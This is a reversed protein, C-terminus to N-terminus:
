GSRYERELREPSWAGEHLSFLPRCAFSQGDFATPMEPWRAVFSGRTASKRGAIWKPAGGGQSFWEIVREVDQSSELRGIIKTSANSFVNYDVSRPSQTCVLCAVGYKRGQSFLRVLPQKAPPQATGAPIYDRAEDLYFLLNTRGRAELESVMWRYLESALAGVFFQKEVDTGLANLYIINLPVRGPASPRVLASIDLPEGDRFLGASSGITLGYLSQALKARAAKALILDADDIGFDEPNLCAKSLTAFDIGKPYMRFLTQLARFVFNAPGVSANAMGSLSVLNQAMTTLMADHEEARRKPDELRALMDETITRLPHLCLRRAHSTGPTFVRPEVKTLFDAHVARWASPIDDESRQRLFQVLDGQPDIALVPIGARIAEEAFVKATWTKGSGAAGVIAVHTNLHVLPLVVPQQSETHGLMLGAVDGDIQEEAVAQEGRGPGSHVTPPHDTPGDMQADTSVGTDDPEIEADETENPEGSGVISPLPAIDIDPEAPSHTMREQWRSIRIGREKDGLIAICQGSKHHKCGECVSLEGPPLLGKGTEFDYDGWGVMAELLDYVKGREADIQEWSKNKSEHTPYLYYVAADPRTGHQHNHMLAYAAIQFLDNSSADSPTLKYDLVQYRGHAHNWYVHDIIGAVHIPPIDPGLHFTMDVRKRPDGFLHEVLERPTMGLSLSANVFVALERTYGEVAKIFAKRQDLGRKRLAHLDICHTNVYRMLEQQLQSEGEANRLIEAVAPDRAGQRTFTEVARHFLTGCATSDGGQKWIRSVVTQGTKRSAQADFWHLRPCTAAVRIQSVSYHILRM